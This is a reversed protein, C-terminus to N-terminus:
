RRSRKGAPFAALTDLNLYKRVDESDKITDDMMYLVVLIGIMLITGIMGGLVVNKTMSPSAPNKPEVAKEVVNPKDINMVNAVRTAAADAMANAISKAMKPDTDTATIKLITTESPNEVAINNSLQEYSMDLDLEEIVNEVVPRSKALITFDATLQSSLTLSINSINATSGLIYISSSATYQPTMFIKTYSGMVVAGVVFCLIIMWAKKLLVHFLEALDIQLEDSNQYEYKEQM